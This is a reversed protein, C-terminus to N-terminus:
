KADESSLYKELEEKLKDPDPLTEESEDQKGEPTKEAPASPQKELNEM